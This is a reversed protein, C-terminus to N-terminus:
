GELWRFVVLATLVTLALVIVGIANNLATRIREKSPAFKKEIRLSSAVRDKFITM